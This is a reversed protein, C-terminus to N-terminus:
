LDDLEAEPVHLEVMNVGSALMTAIPVLLPMQEMPLGLSHPALGRLTNPPSDAPEDCSSLQPGPPSDVGTVTANSSSCPDNYALGELEEMIAEWNQPCRHQNICMNIGAEDGPSTQGDVEEESKIPEESEDGTDSDTNTPLNTSPADSHWLEEGEISMTSSDDRPCSM